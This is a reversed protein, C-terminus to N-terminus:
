APGDAYYGAFFGDAAVGVQWFAHVVGRETGCGFLYYGVFTVFEVGGRDGDATLRRVLATRQQAFLGCAAARKEFQGESLRATPFLRFRPLLPAGSLLRVESRKTRLNPTCIGLAKVPYRKRAFCKQLEGKFHAVFPM